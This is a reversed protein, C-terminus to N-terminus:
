SEKENMQVIERSAQRFGKAEFFAAMVGAIFATCDADSLTGSPPPGAMAMVAKDFEETTTITVTRM